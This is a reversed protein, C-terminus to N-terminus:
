GWGYGEGEDVECPWEKGADAQDTWGRVRVRVGFFILFFILELGLGKDEEYPGEEGADAQDTWRRIRVRVRM